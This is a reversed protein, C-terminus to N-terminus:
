GQGECQKGKERCITLDIIGPLTRETVGSERSSTLEMPTQGEHSVGRSDERVQQAVAVRDKGNTGGHPLAWVRM